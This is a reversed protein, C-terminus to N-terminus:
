GSAKGAQHLRAFRTLNCVIPGWGVWTTVGACGRLLSRRWGYRRKLLSIRAEGGARFRQLRRFWSAGEKAQEAASKKGTKPLSCGIVLENQNM